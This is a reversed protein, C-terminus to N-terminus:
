VHATRMQEALTTTSLGDVRPLLEMRGGYSEVLAWEPLPLFAYTDDKVCIDPRLADIDACPTDESMVVVHDVAGMGRLVAVRDALTVYPREPGKLRRVSEDSNVGVVLLDGLARAMALLRLHGAHVVDFCGNTWVVTRGRTRWGERWALLESLAVAQEGPRRVDDPEADARNLLANWLVSLAQGVPPEATLTIPFSVSALEMLPGRSDPGTLLIRAAGVAEARHFAAFVDDPDYGGAIAVLVDREGISDPDGDLFRMAPTSRRRGNESLLHAVPYHDASEGCLIIRGGSRGATRILEAARKLASMRESLVREPTLDPM